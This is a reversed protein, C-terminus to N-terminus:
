DQKVIRGDHKSIMVTEGIFVADGDIIPDQEPPSIDPLPTFWRLKRKKQEMRALYFGQGRVEYLLLLDGEHELFYVRDLRSRPGVKLYFYRRLGGPLSVEGM